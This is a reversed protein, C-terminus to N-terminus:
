CEVGKTRFPDVRTKLSECYVKFTITTGKQMFEAMQVGKMDWFVTARLKRASTQKFKKPKNPSYTHM